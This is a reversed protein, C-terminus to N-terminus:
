PQFTEWFSTHQLSPGCQLLTWFHPRQSILDHPSRGWSHILGNIFEHSL